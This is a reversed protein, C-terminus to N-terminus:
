NKQNEKFFAPTDKLCPRAKPSWNCCLSSALFHLAISVKISWTSFSVAVETATVLGILQIALNTYLGSWRDVLRQRVTAQVRNTDAIKLKKGGAHRVIVNTSFLRQLRSRLSTKAM